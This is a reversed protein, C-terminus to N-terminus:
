AEEESIEEFHSAHFQRDPIEKLTLRTHWDHVEVDIVTYIEGANLYERARDNFSWTNDKNNTCLIQRKANNWIDFENENKIM